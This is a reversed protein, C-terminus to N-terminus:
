PSGSPPPGLPRAFAGADLTGAILRRGDLALTTVQSAVLGALPTWAGGGASRAVGTTWGAYVVAAAGPDVVLPHHSAVPPPSGAALPGGGVPAWTAGGDASTVVQGGGQEALAYIVRPDSPALALHTVEGLASGGVTVPVATWTAGGDASRQLGGSEAVYLTSPVTTPDLALETADAFGAAARWSAGGDSSALLGGAATASRPVAVYLVASDHPDIAVDAVTRAAVPVRLDSWTAGGDDSVLVQGHLGDSQGAYVKAPSNPDV